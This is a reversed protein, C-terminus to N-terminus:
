MKKRHFVFIYSKKKDICYLWYRGIHKQSCIHGQVEYPYIKRFQSKYM